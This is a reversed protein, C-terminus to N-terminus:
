YIPFGTRQFGRLVDGAGDPAFSFIHPAFSFIHPAPAASDMTCFASHPTCGSTKGVIAPIYLMDPGRPPGGACGYQLPSFFLYKDYTM